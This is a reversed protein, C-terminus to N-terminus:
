GSENVSCLPAFAMSCFIRSLGAPDEAPDDDARDDQDQSDETETGQVEESAESGATAM